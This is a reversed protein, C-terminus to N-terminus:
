PLPKVYDIMNMPGYSHEAMEVTTWTVGDFYVPRVNKVDSGPVVTTTYDGFIDNMTSEDSVYYDGPTLLM